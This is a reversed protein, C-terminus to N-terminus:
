NKKVINNLIYEKKQASTMTKTHVFDGAHKQEYEAITQIVKAPVGVAISNDPIDKTVVADCGIIVNSGITVGPMITVGTGVHVNNGIKVPSFVDIDKYEEKMHRLVWVGGDHTIIKTGGSLRVYDGLEVLYPESGFAVTPYIECGKGIVAGKSRWYKVPDTFLSYWKKVSGFISM